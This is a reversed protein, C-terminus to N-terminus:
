HRKEDDPALNHHGSQPPRVRYVKFRSPDPAADLTDVRIDFASTVGSKGEIEIRSPLFDNKGLEVMLRAVRRAIRGSIPVLRLVYHDNAEEVEISFDRELNRFASPGSFYSQARPVSRGVDFAETHRGGDTSVNLAGDNYIILVAETGVYELRFRDIGAACFTAHLTLPRTLLPSTRTETLTGCGASHRRQADEVGQWVRDLIARPAPRAGRQEASVPGPPGLLMLWSALCLAARLRFRPAM